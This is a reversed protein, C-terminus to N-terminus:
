WANSFKTRDVVGLQYVQAVEVDHSNSFSAVPYVRVPVYYKYLNHHNVLFHSFLCTPATPLLYHRKAELGQHGSWDSVCFLSSTTSNRLRM